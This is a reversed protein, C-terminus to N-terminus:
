RRSSSEKLSQASCGPMTDFAAWNLRTMLNGKTGLIPSKLRGVELTGAVRTHGAQVSEHVRVVRKVLVTTHPVPIM